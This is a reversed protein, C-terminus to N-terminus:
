NRLSVVWLKGDLDTVAAFHEHVAIRAVGQIQPWVRRVEGSQLDRLELKVYCKLVLPRLCETLIPQLPLTEIRPIFHM